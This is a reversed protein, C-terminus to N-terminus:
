KMTITIHQTSYPEKSPQNFRVRLGARGTRSAPLLEAGTVRSVISDFYTIGFIYEGGTKGQVEIRYDKGALEAKIIRYGSSSDGPQPEPTLAHLGIGKTHRMVVSINKNLGIVIPTALVGRVTTGDVTVEKGDVVVGTIIMGAPLEPAFNIDIPSGHEREFAYETQHDNRKMSYRVSTEGIRLNSVALTDWQMPFRPKFDVIKEIANPKWGIMGTIAPHLINTESWCQHACIGTPTFVAGHMVEEVYGLAWYNKVYMNNWIHMFGQTSNGYEYEALATWGTFLPWISGYHYGTPKYLSSSTSVIRIGWDASFGDTAYADLMSRVKADELLNFYAGVAPLVTQETQYTGNKLKGLNYFRTSDNWFDKNIIKQVRQADAAYKASLAYDEMLSAGLSMEKLAQAWLSALYFETHAGFLAGGEIWGHGVNTNEILGDGDTDTSYLFDMARRLNNWSQKVYGIDGSSRVYHGALIIYLPTADSADYHVVGSTSIEHFIKGSPDQYHEYFALQQRVTEYDGYDDIAFSSWAADRGFYWAYGPRGSVKQAGDWGRATTSYGALLGTGVGPTYAKFKDTGVIAWKFLTDFKKDPSTVTVTSSCVRRYHNVVAEYEHRPHQLMVRYERLAPERGENTGIVAINLAYGNEKTLQYQAAHAVVNQTGPIGSLVGHRWQITDFRGSITTQPPIDGGIVTYFDGSVDKIHLAHLAPDYGYYVDGLANMDYPWMWRLDSKCRMVIQLPGTSQYHIIGGAKTLSSYIIEKVEGHPTTYLRVFSEPRVQVRVPFHDLWAITDGSVIGAKYEYMVKYPHVWLEDIGGNEKGMFVARRGAVDFFQNSPTDNKLLMGCEPLDAMLRQPSTALPETRISFEKPRNDFREWYTVPSSFKKGALYDVANGLFRELNNKLNNTRSFYINSGISLMKGNASTHEIVLKTKAYVFVYAKDVGIVRGNAPFRDDFYGIFPLVQDENPDWFYEGGFMGEFLPHGRFGQFGRKDWLWDNQISDLRIGPKNKEIGMEYPLMAAYDTFLIKAGKEFLSRLARVEPRMKVVSKLQLSDSLHVWLVAAAPDLSRIDSLPVHRATTGPRAQLFQLASQEEASLSSSATVLVVASTPQAAAAGACLTLVAAIALLYKM